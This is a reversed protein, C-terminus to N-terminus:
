QNFFNHKKCTLAEHILQGFLVKIEIKTKVPHLNEQLFCRKAVGKM